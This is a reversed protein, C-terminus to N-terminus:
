NRSIKLMPAENFLFPKFHNFATVFATAFTNELVHCESNSNVEHCADFNNVELVQLNGFRLRNFNLEGCEKIGCPHTHKHMFLKKSEELWQGLSEAKGRCGVKSSNASFVCCRVRGNVELEVILWPHDKQPNSVQLIRQSCLGRVQENTMFKWAARVINNRQLQLMAGWKHKLVMIVSLVVVFLPM